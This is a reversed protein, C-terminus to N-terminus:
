SYEHTWEQKTNYAFILKKIITIKKNTKTQKNQKQLANHFTNKKKVQTWSGITIM